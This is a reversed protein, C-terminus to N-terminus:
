AGGPYGCRPDTYGDVVPGTAAGINIYITGAVINLCNNAPIASIIYQCTVSQMGDTCTVKTPLPQGTAQLKVYYDSTRQAATNFLNYFFPTTGPAQPVALNSLQCGLTSLDVVSGTACTLTAKTTSKLPNKSVVPLAWAKPALLGASLGPCGYIRTRAYAPSNLSTIPLGSTNVDCRGQFDVDVCTQCPTGTPPGVQVGPLCIRIKDDLGLNHTPCVVTVPDKPVTLNAGCAANLGTLIGVEARVPGCNFLAAPNTINTGAVCGLQSYTCTVQPAICDCVQPPVQKLARSAAQAEVPRFRLTQVKSGIDAQVLDPWFSLVAAAACFALAVHTSSM